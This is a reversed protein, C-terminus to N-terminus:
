TKYSYIREHHTDKDVFLLGSLELLFMFSRMCSLM